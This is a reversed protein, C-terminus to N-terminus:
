TQKQQGTDDDDVRADDRKSQAAEQEAPTARHKYENHDRLAHASTELVSTWKGFGDYPSRVARGALRASVGANTLADASEKKTYTAM